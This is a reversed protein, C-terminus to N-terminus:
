CGRGGHGMLYEAKQDKNEKDSKKFHHDMIEMYKLSTETSESFSFHFFQM